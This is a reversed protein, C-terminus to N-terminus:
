GYDDDLFLWHSGFVCAKAEPVYSNSFWVLRKLSTPTVGNDPLTCVCLGPGIELVELLCFVRTSNEPNDKTLDPEPMQSGETASQVHPAMQLTSWHPSYPFPAAIVLVRNIERFERKSRELSFM